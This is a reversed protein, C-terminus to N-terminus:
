SFCYLQGFRTGLFCNMVVICEVVLFTFIGCFVPKGVAAAIFFLCPSIVLFHLFVTKKRAHSM